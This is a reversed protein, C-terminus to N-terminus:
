VDSKIIISMAKTKLYLEPNMCRRKLNCQLCSLVVNDGNHGMSNDLRELTWQRPDRVYEYVVRTPKKCYYCILKSEEFLEFVKEKTVFRDLDLIKKEIDQGKYGAIKNKIQTLIVASQTTKEQTEDLIPSLFDIQSESLIDAQSFTWKEENTVVRKKKPKETINKKPPPLDVTKSAM